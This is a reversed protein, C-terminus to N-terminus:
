SGPPSGSISTSTRPDHRQDIPRLRRTRAALFARVAEAAVGRAIFSRGIGRALIFTLAGREGEQGPGHGRRAGRGCRLRRARKALPDAPGVSALHRAVRDADQGPCLGLRASFRFACRWGSRSRRATSSGRATTAPSASWRTRRLHPRPQAPGPRGGRARRPWSRRRPAAASRWRRRRAGARRRLRRALEGGGPSSGADGILGYKM